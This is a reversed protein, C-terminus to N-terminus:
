RRRRSVRQHDRGASERGSRRVRGGQASRAPKALMTVVLSAVLVMGLIWWVRHWIYTNLYDTMTDHMATPLNEVSQGSFNAIGIYTGVIPYESIVADLVRQSDQANVRGYTSELLQQMYIEASDVAGKAQVAGTLLSFQVTLLVALVAGTVYFLVSEVIGKDIAKLIAYVVLMVAAAAIVGYFVCSLATSFLSFFTM